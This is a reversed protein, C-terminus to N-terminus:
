AFPRVDNAFDGTDDSTQWLTAIRVIESWDDVEAQVCEARVSDHKSTIPRDAQEAARKLGPDVHECLDDTGTGSSFLLLKPRTVCNPM